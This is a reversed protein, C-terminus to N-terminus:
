LDPDNNPYPGETEDFCVGHRLKWEGRVRSFECAFYDIMFHERLFSEERMRDRQSELYFLITFDDGNQGDLMIGLPGRRAISAFSRTPEGSDAGYLYSRLSPDRRFEAQIFGPLPEFAALREVDESLLAELFLRGQTEVEQPTLPAAPQVDAAGTVDAAQERACGVVMFLSLLAAAVSASLRISM